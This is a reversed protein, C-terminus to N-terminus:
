APNLRNDSHTVANGERVCGAFHEPQRSPFHQEHAPTTHHAHPVSALHAPTGVLLM